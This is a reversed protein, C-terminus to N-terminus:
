TSSFNLRIEWHHKINMNAAANIFTYSHLASTCVHTNIFLCHAQENIPFSAADNGDKIVLQVILAAFQSCDNVQCQDAEAASKKKYGEQKM